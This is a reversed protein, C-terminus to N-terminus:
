LDNRGRWFIFILRGMLLIFAPGYVFVQAWFPWFQGVFIAAVVSAAAIWAMASWFIKDSTSM